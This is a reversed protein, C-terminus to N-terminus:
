VYAATVNKARAEDQKSSQIKLAAGYHIKRLLSESLIM